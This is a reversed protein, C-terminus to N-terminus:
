PKVPATPQCNQRSTPNCGWLHTTDAVPVLGGSLLTFSTSSENFRFVVNAGGHRGSGDTDGREFVREFDAKGVTPLHLDELVGAANQATQLLRDSEIGLISLCHYLCNPLDQLFRLALIQAPTLDKSM